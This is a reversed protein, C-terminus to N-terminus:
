SVITYCHKCHRAANNINKMGKNTVRCPMCVYMYVYVTYEYPM